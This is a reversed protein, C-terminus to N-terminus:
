SEGPVELGRKRARECFRDWSRVSRSELRSERLGQLISNILERESVNGFKVNNRFISEALAILRQASIESVDRHIENVETDPTRGPINILKLGIDLVVSEPFLVYDFRDYKGRVMSLAAAVRLLRKDDAQELSYVSITNNSTTLDGLPDAPFEGARLWSYRHHDDLDWDQFRDLKRLLLSVV